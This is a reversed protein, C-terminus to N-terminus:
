STAPTITFTRRPKSFRAIAKTTMTHKTVDGLPDTTYSYETTPAGVPPTYTSYKWLGTQSSVPDYLSRSVVGNHAMSADPSIGCFSTAPRWQYQITGGTPLTIQSLEGYNVAPAAAPVGNVIPSYAFSWVNGSPLVIPSITTFTGTAKKYNASNVESGYLLQTQYAVATECIVFPNTVGPIQWSAGTSGSPCGAASGNSGTTRFSPISRGLTDTWGTFVQTPTGGVTQTTYNLTIQNGNSDEVYLLQGPLNGIIVSGGTGATCAFVYLTGENDKLM